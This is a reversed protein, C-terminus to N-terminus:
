ARMWYEVGDFTGTTYDMKLADAAAEWDIHTFPWCDADSMECVDKALEEAYETFYSDRILTEGHEWDGYGELEMAFSELNQWDELYDDEWDTLAKV